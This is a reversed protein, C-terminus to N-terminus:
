KGREPAYYSKRGWVVYEPHGRVEIRVRRLKGDREKNTPQYGIVYRRNIDSLIRGYVGAAQGPEELFDTWGGSVATVGGLATQQWLMM